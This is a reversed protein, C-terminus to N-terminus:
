GSSRAEELLHSSLRCTHKYVSLYMDIQLSRYTYTPINIYSEPTESLIRTCSPRYPLKPRSSTPSDDTRTFVEQPLESPFLLPLFSVFDADSVYKSSVRVFARVRVCDEEDREKEVCAYMYICMDQPSRINVAYTNLYPFGYVVGCERRERRRREEADESVQLRRQISHVPM